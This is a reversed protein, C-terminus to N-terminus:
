YSSLFNGSWLFHTYYFMFMFDTYSSICIYCILQICIQHWTHIFTYWMYYIHMICIHSMKWIDIILCERQSNEKKNKKMHIYRCKTRLRSPWLKSFTFITDWYSNSKGSLSFKCKIFSTEVICMRLVNFFWLSSLPFQLTYIFPMTSKFM